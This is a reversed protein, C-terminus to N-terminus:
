HSKTSDFSKVLRLLEHRDIPKSVFSNFEEAGEVTTSDHASFAVAPTTVGQNRLARLTELGNMQPMNLDIVILDYTESQCRKLAEAGSQALDVEIGKPNLAAKVFGRIHKCDDVVLLKM